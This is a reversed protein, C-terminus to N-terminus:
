TAAAQMMDAMTVSMAMMSAQDVIVIIRTLARVSASSLTLRPRRRTTLPSKHRSSFPRWHRDWAGGM